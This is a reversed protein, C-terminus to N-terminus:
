EGEAALVTAIAPASYVAMRMLRKYVRRKREEAYVESGTTAKKGMFNKVSFIAFFWLPFQPQIKGTLLMELEHSLKEVTDQLKRADLVPLHTIDPTNLDCWCPDDDNKWIILPVGFVRGIIPRYEYVLCGQDGIFSCKTKHKLIHRLPAGADQVAGASREEIAEAIRELRKLKAINKVANRRISDFAEPKLAQMGMQLYWADIFSIAVDCDCCESCAPGCRTLKLSHKFVYDQFLRDAEKLISEYRELIAQEGTNVPICEATMM